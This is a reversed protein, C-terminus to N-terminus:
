RSFFKRAFEKLYNRLIANHMGVACSKQTMVVRVHARASVFRLLNGEFKTWDRLERAGKKGGGIPASVPHAFLSDVIVQMRMSLVGGNKGGFRPLVWIKFYKGSKAQPAIKQIIIFM